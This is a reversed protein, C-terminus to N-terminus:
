SSSRSTRPQHSELPQFKQFDTDVEIPVHLRQDHIAMTIRTPVVQTMHPRISVRFECDADTPRSHFTPTTQNWGWHRTSKRRANALLQIIQNASAPKVRNGHEPRGQESTRAEGVVRETM